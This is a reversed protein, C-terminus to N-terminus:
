RLYWIGAVKGLLLISSGVLGAAYGIERSVGVRSCLASGAGVTMVFGSVYLSQDLLRMVYLLAVSVVSALMAGALRVNLMVPVRSMALTYGVLSFFLCAFLHQNPPVDHFVQPAKQVLINNVLWYLVWIILCFCGIEVTGLGVQGSGLEANEEAGSGEWRGGSGKLAM